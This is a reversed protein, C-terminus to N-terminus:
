TTQMSLFVPFMAIARLLLTVMADQMTTEGSEVTLPVVSAAM